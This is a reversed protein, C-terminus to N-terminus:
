GFRAIVAAAETICGAFIYASAGAIMKRTEKQTRDCFSCVLPSLPSSPRRAALPPSPHEDAVPLGLARSYEAVADNRLGLREYLSALKLHIDPREPDLKLIQKNVAVSKLFFGDRM